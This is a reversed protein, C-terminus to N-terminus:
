VIIHMPSKGRYVVKLLDPFSLSLAEEDYLYTLPEPLIGSVYKPVYSENLGPVLSLLVPREKTKSLKLYYSKIEDEVPVPIEIKRKKITDDCEHSSSKRKHQPTAFDVKAFQVSRFTPPLWTCYQFLSVDQLLIPKLQLCLVHREWDLWPCVTHM